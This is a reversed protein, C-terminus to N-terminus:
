KRGEGLAKHPPPTVSTPRAEAGGPIGQSPVVRTTAPPSVPRPRWYALAGIVLSALSIIGTIAVLIFTPTTSWHPKSSRASLEARIAQQLPFPIVGPEGDDGLLFSMLEFDSRAKMEKMTMTKIKVEPMRIRPPQLNAQLNSLLDKFEPPEM